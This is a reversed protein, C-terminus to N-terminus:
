RVITVTSDGAEAVPATHENRLSRIGAILTTLGMLALVGACVGFAMRGTMESSVGRAQVFPGIMRTHFTRPGPGLAIWGFMTAMLALVAVGSLLRALRFGFRQARADDPRVAGFMISVGTAAFTAGFLTVMWPPIGKAYRAHVLGLGIMAAIGGLLLFAVGFMLSQTKTARSPM